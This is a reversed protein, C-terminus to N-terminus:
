KGFPYLLLITIQKFKFHGKNHDHPPASARKETGEWFAWHLLSVRFSLNVVNVCSVDFLKQQCFLILLCLHRMEKKWSRSWLNPFIAYMKSNYLACMMLYISNKMFGLWTSHRSLVIFKSMCFYLHPPTHWVKGIYYFCSRRRYFCTAASHKYSQFVVYVWQIVPWWLKIPVLM